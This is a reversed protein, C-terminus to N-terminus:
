EAKSYEKDYQNNDKITQISNTYVAVGNMFSVKENLKKIRPSYVYVDHEIAKGKFITRPYKM